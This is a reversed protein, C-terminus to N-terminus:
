SNSNKHITRVGKRLIRCVNSIGPGLLIHTCWLDLPWPRKQIFILDLYMEFSVRKHPEISDAPRNGPGESGINERLWYRRPPLNTRDFLRCIAGPIHHPNNVKDVFEKGRNSTLDEESLGLTRLHKGELNEKDGGKRDTGLDSKIMTETVGKEDVQYFPKFRHSRDKGHSSPHADLYNLADEYRKVSPNPQGKRHAEAKIQQAISKRPAPAQPDLQQPKKKVYVASNEWEPDEEGIGIVPAAQDDKVRERSEESTEFMKQRQPPSYLRFGQDDNDDTLNDDVVLGCVTCVIEGREINVALKGGCEPCERLSGDTM